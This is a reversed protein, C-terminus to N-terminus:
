YTLKVNTIGTGGFRVDEDEFKSVVDIGSLYERVLQRLIGDGKGHLIRLDGAGVMIAEDIFAGVKRLAEDARLGRIDLSPAFEMKRQNMDFGSFSSTAQRPGSVERFIKESVPEAQSVPITTLMQGMAILLNNGRMEIIEGYVERDRIKIKQGQLWSQPLEKEKKEPKKPVSEPQLKKRIRISEKKINEIKEEDKKLSGDLEEKVSEKLRVLTERIERARAKDAQSERIERVAQEIQQNIGAMLTETQRKTETLIKKREKEAQVLLETYKELVADVENSTQRIKQRKNEWYRKDRSIERLHKDFNLQKDGVLGSANEIVSEPLGIKRAIEFAFSSGPKGIELEFLPMMQQVDYRMAANVVGEAASAFHKLNTYHTTIIGFAGSAALEKLISEAIAGGLQPETGAGFEDILLLTGNGSRRLFTKMHQLHSSYTSLDNEISQEDGIDLLFQTFIGSESGEEVPALFGCQIAYQILGAAKLCVSKGGANPGSILLIRQTSNLEIDQPVIKRRDAKLVLDLLPHRARKWRIMTDKRLIVPKGDWKLSLKAKARTLDLFGALLNWNEIDPFYPRIANTLEILLRVIERQEALELERLSNNLEVLEMPEIFATRGTASEDHIFGRIKRKNSVPVPVVLRGDRVSAQTDKDIWGESRAQQLVSEMRRSISAQMHSMDQRIKKLDQSAQDRIQGQKNFVQDLKEQIFPFVSIGAVRRRLNPFSEPPKKEFFGSIQRVSLLLRRLDLWENVELFTGPIAGRKLSGRLDVPALEPFDSYHLLIDAFENTEDILRSVSQLDSLPRINAAEELGVPTVCLDAVKQLIQSFGIKDNFKEPYVM